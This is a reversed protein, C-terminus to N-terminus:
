PKHVRLFVMHIAVTTLLRRSIYHHAFFQGLQQKFEIYPMGWSHVITNRAESHVSDTQEAGMYESAMSRNHLHIYQTCRKTMQDKNPRQAGNVSTIAPRPGSTKRAYVPMSQVEYVYEFTNQKRSSSSLEGRHRFTIRLNWSLGIWHIM